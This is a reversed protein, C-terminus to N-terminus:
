SRHTKVVHNIVLTLAKRIMDLSMAASDRHQSVVQEPLLPIHIFGSRHALGHKEALYLGSYQAHNCLYQGAYFSDAAAIGQEELVAQLGDTGLLISWYAVPRNPDIVQRMFTNATMKEITVKNYCPAQGIYICLEPV